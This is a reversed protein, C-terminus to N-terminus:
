QVEDLLIDTAKISFAKTLGSVLHSKRLSLFWLVRHLMKPRSQHMNMSGLSM